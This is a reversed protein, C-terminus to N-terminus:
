GALHAAVGFNRFVLHVEIVLTAAAFSGVRGCFYTGDRAPPCGWGKQMPGCRPIGAVGNM